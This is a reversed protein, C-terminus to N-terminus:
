LIAPKMQSFSLPKGPPERDSMAFYIISNDSRNLQSLQEKLESLMQMYIKCKAKSFRHNYELDYVFLQEDTSFGHLDHVPILHQFSNYFAKFTATDKIDNFLNSYEHALENPFHLLNMCKASSNSCITLLFERVWQEWQSSSFFFSKQLEHLPQGDFYQRLVFTSRFYCFKRYKKATSLIPLRIGKEWLPILRQRISKATINSLM